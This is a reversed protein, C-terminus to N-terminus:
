STHDYLRQMSRSQLLRKKAKEEIQRIRERSRSFCQGIEALTQEKEGGFGFRRRIVNREQRSLHKLARAVKEEIEDDPLRDGPLPAGADELIDGVTYAGDRNSIPTELSLPQQSAALLRIVKWPATGAKRAIEDTSPQGGAKQTIEGAARIIRSILESERAPIRITRSKDAIARTVAQRIWWTAYTSFKYGRRYQFRDVAKMLGLNGEQILDLLALTGSAGAYRKAMSVVLRLNAEIVKQKARRLNEEARDLRALAQKFRSPPLGADAAIARRDEATKKQRLRAGCERVRATIKDIFTPKFCVGRLALVREELAPRGRLCKFVAELAWIDAVILKEGGDSPIIIEDAGIEEKQLRQDCALIVDMAVPFAALVELLNNQAREIDRFAQVEREKTLLPISGIERLYTRVSDPHGSATRTGADASYEPREPDELDGDRSSGSFEFIEEDPNGDGGTKLPLCVIESDRM